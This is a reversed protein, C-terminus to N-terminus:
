SKAQKKGKRNKKHKKATLSSEEQEDSVQLRDNHIIAHKDSHLIIPKLQACLFFNGKRLVRM